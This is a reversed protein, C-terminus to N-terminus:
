AIGLATLEPRCAEEVDHRLVPVLRRAIEHLRDEGPQPLDLLVRRRVVVRGRAHDSDRTSVFTRQAQHEPTRESLRRENPKTPALLPRVPDTSSRVPYAALAQRILRM